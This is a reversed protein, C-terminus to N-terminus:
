LVLPRYTRTRSLRAHGFQPNLEGLWVVKAGEIVCHIHVAVLRTPCSISWGFLELVVDGNRSYLVRLRIASQSHTSPFSTEELVFIIEVLFGEDDFVVILAEDVLAIMVLTLDNLVWFIVEDDLLTIMEELVFIVEEVLSDDEVDDELRLDVDDDLLVVELLFMPEVEFGEDVELSEVVLRCFVVLEEFTSLLVLFILLLLLLLMLFVLPLVVACDDDARVLLVDIVLRLELEVDEVGTRKLGELEVLDETITELEVLGEIAVDLLLDDVFGELELLSEAVVETRAV